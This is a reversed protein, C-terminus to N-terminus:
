LFRVTMPLPTLATVSREWQPFMTRLVLHAYKQDPKPHDVCCEPRIPRCHRKMEAILKNLSDFYHQERVKENYIFLRAALWTLYGYRSAENSFRASFKRAQIM